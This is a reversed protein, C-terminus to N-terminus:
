GSIITGKLHSLNRKAIEEHHEVHYITFYFMERLTLKGLLPHPLIYYDLEAESYRKFRRELRSLTKSIANALAHRKEFEVINPRFPTNATGGAQLKNLYKEVLADYTKSERNAKGFKRKIMFKPFFLIKALPHLSLLIHALQQGATWKESYSYNLEEESLGKMYDLFARHKQNLMSVIQEKQM